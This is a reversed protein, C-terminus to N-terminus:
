QKRKSQRERVLERKLRHCKWPRVSADKRTYTVTYEGPDTSANMSFGGTVKGSSGASTGGEETYKWGSIYYDAPGGASGYVKGWPFTTGVGSWMNQYYPYEWKNYSYTANTPWPSIQQGPMVGCATYTEDPYPYSVELGAHAVTAALAIAIHLVIPFPIIRM